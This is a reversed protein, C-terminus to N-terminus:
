ASAAQAPAGVASQPGYEVSVPGNIDFPSNLGLEKGFERIRPLVEQGLLRICTKTDEHSDRRRQGVAGPDVSPHARDPIEAQGRM